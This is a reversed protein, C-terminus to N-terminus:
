AVHTGENYGHNWIDGVPYVRVFIILILINILLFDPNYFYVTGLLILQRTKSHLLLCNM